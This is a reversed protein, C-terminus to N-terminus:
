TPNKSEIAEKLLATFEYELVDAVAVWDNQKQMLYVTELSFTIKKLYDPSIEGSTLIPKMLQICINFRSAADSYNGTRACFIIEKLGNIIKNITTNM